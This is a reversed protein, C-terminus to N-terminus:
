LFLRSSTRFRFCSAASFYFRSLAGFLFFRSLCGFFFSATSGFLRTQGGFSFRLTSGLLLFRTPKSKFLRGRREIGFRDQREVM